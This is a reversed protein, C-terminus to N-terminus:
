HCIFRITIYILLLHLSSCSTLWSAQNRIITPLAGKLHAQAEAQHAEFAARAQQEEKQRTREIKQKDRESIQPLESLPQTILSKGAKLEEGTLQKTDSNALVVPGQALARFGVATQSEDRGLARRIADCADRAAAESLVCGGDLLFPGLAEYGDDDGWDFDEDSVLGSIYEVLAPDPADPFMASIITLADQNDSM